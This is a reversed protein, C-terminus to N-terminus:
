ESPQVRLPLTLACFPADPAAEDYAGGLLGGGDAQRHDAPRMHEPVLCLEVRQRFPVQQLNHDISFPKGM